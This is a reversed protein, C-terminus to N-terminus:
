WVIVICIFTRTSVELVLNVDQTLAQVRYFSAILSLPIYGEM